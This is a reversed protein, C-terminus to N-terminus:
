KGKDLSDLMESIHVSYAASDDWKFVIEPTFRLKLHHGLEGRIFNRAKYLTGLIQEKDEGQPLNSVFVKAVRLDSSLNVKNITVNQLRPDSIQRLLIQSIERLILESVRQRRSYPLNM